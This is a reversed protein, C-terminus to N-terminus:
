KMLGKWQMELIGSLDVGGGGRSIDENIKRAHDRAIAQPDFYERKVREQREAPTENTM